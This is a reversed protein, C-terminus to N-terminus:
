PQALQNPLVFHARARNSFLYEESYYRSLLAKSGGLLDDNRQKFADWSEDPLFREAILLLFFWTLTAHYKSEAGVKTVLRKLAADFRTIAEPLEYQQIYLWGVYVHAEHDFREADVDGTEFNSITLITEACKNL